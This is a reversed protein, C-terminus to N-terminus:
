VTISAIIPSIYATRYLLGCRFSVCRLHQKVDTKQSATTDSRDLGGMRPSAHSKLVLNREYKDLVSTDGDFDILLHCLSKRKRMLREACTSEIQGKKLIDGIQDKGIHKDDEVSLGMAANTTTFESNGTNIIDHEFSLTSM